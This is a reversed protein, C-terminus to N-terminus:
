PTRYNSLMLLKSKNTPLLLAPDEEVLKKANEAEAMGVTGPTIDHPEGKLFKLLEMQFKERYEKSIADLAADWEEQTDYGWFQPEYESV